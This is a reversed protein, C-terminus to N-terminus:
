FIKVILVIKNMVIETLTVYSDVSQLSAIRTELHTEKRSRIFVSSNNFVSCYDQQM